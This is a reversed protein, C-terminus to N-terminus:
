DKIKLVVKGKPSGKELYNFAEKAQELPFIKDVQPKIVGKDVLESLRTLHERNTHTGQGIATVKYRKALDENPAGVMSVLVGGIKLVKFSGDTTDGGVTDFVADFDKLIEEFKETKLGNPRLSQKYDIIQDAGLSKVFEKDNTSVTTAVYAGLHKGLQIAISGIGGAGGHILIKQGSQLKIHEELAQLASSGVLPLSAAEVHDIKKPKLATNKVNAASVEAFAGSGGNLTLSSGFIEDGIKFESVGEGLKLVVGSFDGGPTYPFELPMSDKYIGSRIKSDFPNISATHVEVLIQDQKLSPKAMDKVEVAEEPEGYQTIQVAKM